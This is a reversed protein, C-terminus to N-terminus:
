SSRASEITALWEDLTCSYTISPSAFQDDVTSCHFTGGGDGIGLRAPVNVALSTLDSNGPSLDITSTEGGARVTAVFRGTFDETQTWRLFMPFTRGPSIDFVVPDGPYAEVGTFRGPDCSDLLPPDDFVAVPDVGLAMKANILLECAGKGFCDGLYVWVRDPAPTLTGQARIDSVTIAGSGATNSFYAWLSRRPTQEGHQALWAAVTAM